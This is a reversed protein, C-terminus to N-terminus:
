LVQGKKKKKKPIEDEYDDKQSKRKKKDKEGKKKGAPEAGDRKGSNKDKLDAEFRALDADLKRIHKDVLEYTQMALQVKDDGYERGKSFLQQITGLQQRRKESPLSRVKQLYDTAQRDVEQILDM